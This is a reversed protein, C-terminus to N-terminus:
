KLKKIRINKYFIIKNVIPKSKQEFEIFSNPFFINIM